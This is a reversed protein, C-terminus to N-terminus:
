QMEKALELVASSITKGDAQGALETILMKNYNRPSLEPVEEGREKMGEIKKM